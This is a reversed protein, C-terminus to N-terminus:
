LHGREAVIGFYDEPTMERQEGQCEICVQSKMTIYEQLANLTVNASQVINHFACETSTDDLVKMIMFLSAYNIVNTGLIIQQRSDGIAFNGNSIIKKFEPTMVVRKSISEAADALGLGMEICFPVFEAMTSITQIPIEARVQEMLEEIDEM